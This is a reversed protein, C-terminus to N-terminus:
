DLTAQREREQRVFEEIDIDELPTVRAVLIGEKYFLIPQEPQIRLNVDEAEGQEVILTMGPELGLRKRIRSPIRIQGKDDVQVEFPTIM